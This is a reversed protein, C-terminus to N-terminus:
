IKKFQVARMRKGKEQDVVKVLDVPVSKGLISCERYKDDASISINRLYM